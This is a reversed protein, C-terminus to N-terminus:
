ARIRKVMCHEPQARLHGAPPLLLGVKRAQLPVLPLPIAGPKRFEFSPLNKTAERSHLVHLLQEKSHQKPVTAENM